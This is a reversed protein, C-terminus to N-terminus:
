SDLITLLMAPARNALSKGFRKKKNFKGNKNITTNKARAQLGKYNMTEVYIDNGLSLIHNALKNHSQKRIEKPFNPYHKTNVDLTLKIVEKNEDYHPTEKTYLM